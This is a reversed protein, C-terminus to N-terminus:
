KRRTYSLINNQYENIVNHKIAAKRDHIRNATSYGLGFSLLSMIVLLCAFPTM